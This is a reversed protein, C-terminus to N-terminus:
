RLLAEPLNLLHRMQEVKVKLYQDMENGIRDPDPSRQWAIPVMPIREIVKIGANEVQEIKDPNNTLLRITSLNLDEFIQTAIDYNRLDAPHKLVHNAKVTDYGIDQLNYARLKDALGIGRGEQRLYIIVGRGELKILRMAEDLQEGCDCRASHITEGTFCESHIRVLPSPLQVSSVKPDADSTESSRQGPKLRGKYAGRIIRDMESEGPKSSDLSNSRIDDGYVIALHEKNDRDSRYLHLFFEGTSTPIRARVQCEIKVTNKKNILNSSPPTTPPTNIVESGRLSHRFNNSLGNTFNKKISVSTSSRKIPTVIGNTLPPKYTTTPAETKLSVNYSSVGILQAEETNHFGM